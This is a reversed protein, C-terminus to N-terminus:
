KLNSYFLYLMFSGKKTIIGILLLVNHEIM